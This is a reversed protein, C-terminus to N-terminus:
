PPLVGFVQEPLVRPLGAADAVAGAVAYAADATDRRPGGIVAKGAASRLVQVLPTSAAAARRVVVAVEGSRLQVFDGPPYIGVAKILAGAVPGGAEEQLLERAASQPSRAARLTRPSIKATYVDAARLVHAVEDIAQLGQPYGSGDPREHHQEVAALWTADAVGSARLREAARMPHARIEDIQRRTPPETQEAMRAQLEVIAANMTIAALVLSRQQPAPWDLGRACLLAVTATNLGHSLAYLAHRKDDQRVALFLAADPQATVLAIQRDALAQLEAGQSPDRGLARLLADLAWMQAEWADFWNAERRASLAPAVGVAAQAQRVAEVEHPQVSAGRELLAVLQASGTIRQGANLLLRGSGDYVSFPLPEGPTLLDRVQALPVRGDTSM